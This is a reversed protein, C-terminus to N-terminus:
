PPQIAVLSTDTGVGIGGRNLQVVTVVRLLYIGVLALLHYILDQVYLLLLQQKFIVNLSSFAIFCVRCTRFLVGISLLARFYLDVLLHAFNCDISELHPIPYENFM